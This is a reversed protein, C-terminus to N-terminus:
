QRLYFYSHRSGVKVFIGCLCFEILTSGNFIDCVYKFFSCICDCLFAGRPTQSESTRLRRSYTMWPKLGPDCFFFTRVESCQLCWDLSFSKLGFISIQSLAFVNHGKRATQGRDKKNDVWQTELKPPRLGKLPSGGPHLNKIWILQTNSWGPDNKWKLTKLDNLGFDWYLHIWLHEIQWSDDLVGEREDLQASFVRVVGRGNPLLRPLLQGHSM